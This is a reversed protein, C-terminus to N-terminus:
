QVLNEKKRRMEATCRICNLLYGKMYMKVKTKNEPLSTDCGLVRNLFRQYNAVDFASSVVSFSLAKIWFQDKEGSYVEILKEYFEYLGFVSQPLKRGDDESMLIERNILLIENRYDDHFAWEVIQYTMQVIMNWANNPTMFGQEEAERIEDLVPANLRYFSDLTRQIVAQYLSEKSQFHAQLSSLSSGADAVIQRTTVGDFGKQAFLRAASQMLREYTTEDRGRM